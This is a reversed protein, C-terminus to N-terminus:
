VSTEYFGASSYKWDIPESVLGKKVPNYHIYDIKQRLMKDSLIEKPKYGEQWVQYNSQTKYNKKSLRLLELIQNKRDETLQKIIEKASYMKILKMINILEKSRLILHFHNPLIVYAFIELKSKTQYFKIAEILINYYKENTFISVWEITTSTVFYLAEDNFIKYRSRM